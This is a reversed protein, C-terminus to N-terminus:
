HSDTWTTQITEADALTAPRGSGSLYSYANKAQDYEEQTLGEALLHTHATNWDSHTTVYTNIRDYLAWADIASEQSWADRIYAVCTQAQSAEKNGAVDADPTVAEQADREEMTTQAEVGANAVADNWANIDPARLNQELIRGDDFTSTVTGRHQGSAQVTPDGDRVDTSVVPM